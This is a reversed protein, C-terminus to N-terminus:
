QTPLPTAHGTCVVGWAGGVGWRGGKKESSEILQPEGLELFFSKNKEYEEDDIIRVKIMK